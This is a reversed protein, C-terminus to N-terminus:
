FPIVSFGICDPLLDALSHATAELESYSSGFIKIQYPPSDEFNLFVTGYYCKSAKKM